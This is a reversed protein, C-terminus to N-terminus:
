DEDGTTGMKGPFALLLGVVFWGWLAANAWKEHEESGVLCGVLVWGLGYILGLIGLFALLCATSNLSTEGAVGAVIGAMITLLLSWGAVNWYGTVFEAWFEGYWLGMRWCYLVWGLGGLIGLIGLLFPRWGSAHNLTAGGKQVKLSDEIATNYKGEDPRRM